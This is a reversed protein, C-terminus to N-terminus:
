GAVKRRLTARGGRRPLRAPLYHALYAVCARKAEVTMRLTISGHEVMSLCLMLDAIELARFFIASRDPLDPLRFVAEIHEEFACALLRDRQRDRFKLEPPTHPGILLRCAPPNAAFYGAGREILEDIVDRWTRPRRRLPAQHRALLESAVREALADYVARINAYFHYASAVPVRGARAVDGLSLADLDRTALLRWAADLLRERRLIGRAHLGRKRVAPAGTRGTDRKHPRATRAPAQQSSDAM